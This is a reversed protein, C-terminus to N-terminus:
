AFDLAIYAAGITANNKPLVCNLKEFEGNMIRVFEERIVTDKLFQSGAMALKGSQLNLHKITPIAIESLSKAAKLLILKATEDGNETAISALKSYNAIAKKETTKDYVFKVISQVDKTQPMDFVLESLMTPAIREDSARIVASLVDRGVAYGSGEDDILHGYGGCRFAQGQVNKGYCISGTGSIIVAGSNEGLAGVLATEQDGVVSLKGSYSSEKFSNKILNVADVNSVGASGVCITKCYQLDADHKKIYDVCDAISKKVVDASNGNLNMAGFEKTFIVNKDLDMLVIETKTGGGDCGVVYNKVM